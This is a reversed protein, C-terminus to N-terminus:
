LARKRVKETEGDTLAAQHVNETTRLAGEPGLAVLGNRRQALGLDDGRVLRSHPYFSAVGVMPHEAARLRNDM